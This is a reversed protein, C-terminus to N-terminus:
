STKLPSWLGLPQSNGFDLWSFCWELEILTVHLYSFLLQFISLKWSVHTLELWESCSLNWPFYENGEVGCHNLITFILSYSPDFLIGLNTEGEGLERRSHLEVFLSSGTLCLLLLSHVLTVGEAELWWEWPLHWVELSEVLLEGILHLAVLLRRLKSSGLWEVEMLRLIIWIKSLIHISIVLCNVGGLLTSFISRGCEISVQELFINWIWWGGFLM